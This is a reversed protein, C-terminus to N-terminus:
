EEIITKLYDILKKATPAYIRWFEIQPATSSLLFGTPTSQMKGNVVSKHAFGNGNLGDCIITAIRQVGSDEFLAELKAKCELYTRLDGAADDGPEGAPWVGFVAGDGALDFAKKVANGVDETKQLDPGTPKRPRAM